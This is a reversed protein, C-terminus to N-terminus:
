GQPPHLLGGVETGVVLLTVCRVLVRRTNPVLSGPCSLLSHAGRHQGPPALLRDRPPLAELPASRPRAHSGLGLARLQLWLPSSLVESCHLVLAGRSHLSPGVQAVFERQPRRWRWRGM